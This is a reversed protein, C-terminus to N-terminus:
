ENAAGKITNTITEDILRIGSPGAILYAQLQQKEFPAMQDKLFGAVYKEDEPFCEALVKDAQETDADTEFKLGRLRLRLETNIKPVCEKGGFGVPQIGDFSLQAM